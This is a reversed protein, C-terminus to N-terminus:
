RCRHGNLSSCGARARAVCVTISFTSLSVSNKGRRQKNLHLFFNSISRGKSHHVTLWCGSETWVATSLAIHHLNFINQV